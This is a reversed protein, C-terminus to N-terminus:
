NTVPVEEGVLKKEESFKYEADKAAQIKDAEARADAAIDSVEAQIVEVQEMIYDKLLFGQTAVKRYLEKAKDSCFIADSSKGLVYGGVFSILVKKELFM